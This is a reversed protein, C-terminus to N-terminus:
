NGSSKSRAARKPGPRSGSSGLFAETKEQQEKMADNLIRRQENALATSQKLMGSAVMPDVGNAIGWAAGIVNSYTLVEGDLMAEGVEVPHRKLCFAMTQRLTSVPMAELKEQWSELSGWHMEIEAIVNNTFKINVQEIIPEGDDTFIREFEETGQVRQVKILNCPIGKNKLVIPSYDM